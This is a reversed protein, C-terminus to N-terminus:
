CLVKAVITPSTGGSVGSVVFRVFHDRLDVATYSKTGTAASFNLNTGAGADVFESDINNMAKQVAVNATPTGGALTVEFTVDRGNNAGTNSQLECPMSTVNALTEGVEPVLAQVRGTAAVSTITGSGSTTYQITGAGTTANVSVATIATQAGTVNFNTNDSLVNILQGVVPVNGEIVQITVTATTGTRAVNTITYNGVAARYDFTGLLYTPHGPVAQPVPQNIGTYAPM